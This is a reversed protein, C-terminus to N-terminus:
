ADAVTLDNPLPTLWESGTETILINEENKLAYRTKSFPFADFLNGEIAMMMGPELIEQARSNLLPLEHTTLGIGHGLFDWDAEQQKRISDAFGLAIAADVWHQFLDAASIGPRAAHIAAMNADRSAYYYREQEPSPTGIVACRIMDSHYGHYILGGDVYVTDGKQFRYDSPIGDFACPGRGSAHVFIIWPNNVCTDPCLRVMEAAMVQALERESMGCRVADMGAAFAQCSIECAHRAKDIERSSKIARVRSLVPANDAWSVKPLSAQLAQFFPPSWGPREHPGIEVGIRGTELGLDRLAAAMTEVAGKGGGGTFQSWVRVQEICSTWATQELHDAVLLVAERDPDAPIVACQVDDHMTCIWYGSLLGTTYAVNPETTLLAADMGSKQLESQLRALRDEYEALPFHHNFQPEKM